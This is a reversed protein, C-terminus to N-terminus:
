LGLLLGIPVVVKSLQSSLRFEESVRRLEMVTTQVDGYIPWTDLNFVRLFGHCSSTLFM